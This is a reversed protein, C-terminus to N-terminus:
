KDRLKQSCNDKIDLLITKEREWRERSNYLKVLFKADGKKPHKALYLKTKQSKSEHYPKRDVEIEFGQLEIKSM